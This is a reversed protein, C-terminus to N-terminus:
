PLIGIFDSPSLTRSSLSSFTPLKLGLEWAGLEERLGVEGLELVGPGAQRMDHAEARLLVERFEGLVDALPPASFARREILEPELAHDCLSGDETGGFLQNRARFPVFAAVSGVDHCVRNGLEDM